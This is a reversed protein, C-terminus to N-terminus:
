FHVATVVVSVQLDEIVHVIPQGRRLYTVLLLRRMRLRCVLQFEGLGLPLLVLDPEAFHQLVLHVPELLRKLWISLSSVMSPWNGCSAIGLSEPELCSLVEIPACAHKEFVILLGHVLGNRLLRARPSLLLVALAQVQVLV